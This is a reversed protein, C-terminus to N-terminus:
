ESLLGRKMLNTRILEDINGDLISAVNGDNTNSIHDVVLSYPQITYTRIQSGWSISDQENYTKKDENRRKNKELEILRLKMTKIASEKNSNQSRESQSVVVIGTPKHKMRVATEVKNRHQGGSGTSIFTDIDVDNMNLEIFEEVQNNPRVYVSAFSTHRSGNKDFPSNRILRHVGTENKLYGYAWKGDIIFDVSNIGEGSGNSINIIDIQYNHKNSWKGYMRFLMGAWDEAELGGSGANISVIASESDNEESLLVYKEFDEYRLMFDELHKWFVLRAQNDEPCSKLYEDYFISDNFMHCLQDYRDIFETLCKHENMLKINEQSWEGIM